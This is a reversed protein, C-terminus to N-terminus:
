AANTRESPRSVPTGKLAMEYVNLTEDIFHQFDHQREFKKRANRGITLRVKPNELLFQIASALREPTKPPVLIGTEGDVVFESVGGVNTAIHTKCLSAAELLVYPLGEQVSSLMLFETVSMLSTVDTTAPVIRVIDELRNTKIFQKLTSEEPGEGLIICVAKVNRLVTQVRKVSELLTIRDKQLTLSGVSAVVRVYPALGLFRRFNDIDDESRANLPQMGIYITKVSQPSKHFDGILMNRVHECCAITVDGFRTIRRYNSFTNHCTSVHPIGSVRAAIRALADSYRKHSHIIDIRFARITRHLSTLTAPIAAVNKRSSGKYVIPVHVFKVSPDLRSRLPGDSACVVVSHGRSVLGESLEVVHKPGGRLDLDDCLLLIRM